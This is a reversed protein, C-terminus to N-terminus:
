HIFFYQKMKSVTQQHNEVQNTAMTNLWTFVMHGTVNVYNQKSEIGGYIQLRWTQCRFTGPYSM